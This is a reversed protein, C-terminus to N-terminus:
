KSRLSGASPSRAGIPVPIHRKSERKDSKYPTPPSLQSSSEESIPSFAPRYATDNIQLGPSPSEPISYYNLVDELNNASQPEESSPAPSLMNFGPSTVNSYLSPSQTVVVQYQESMSEHTVSHNDESVTYALKPTPPLPSRPSRPMRSIGPVGAQHQSEVGPEPTTPIFSTLDFEMGPSLLASIPRSSPSPTPPLAKPHISGTSSRRKLVQDRQDDGTRSKKPPQYLLDAGPPIPPADPSIIFSDNYSGGFSHEARPLTM